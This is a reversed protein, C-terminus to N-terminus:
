RTENIDVLVSTLNELKEIRALLDIIIEEMVLELWTGDQLTGLNMRAEKRSEFRNIYELRKKYYTQLEEMAIAGPPKQDAM